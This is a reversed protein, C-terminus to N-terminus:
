AKAPQTMQCSSSISSCRQSTVFSASMDFLMVAPPTLGADLLDRSVSVAASSPLLSYHDFM